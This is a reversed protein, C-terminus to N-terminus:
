LSLSRAGAAEEVAGRSRPLRLPDEQIAQRIGGRQRTEAQRASALGFGHTAETLSGLRICDNITNDYLNDVLNCSRWPRRCLAPRHRSGARDPLPSAAALGALRPEKDAALAVSMLKPCNDKFWDRRPRWHTMVKAYVDLASFRAGLFWPRPAIAAEVIRWSKDRYADTSARLEKGAAEGSVFREPFDGVMYMPYVNAVIFILWRLFADRAPDGPPPVLAAAPAHDAIHLAIAASESMVTGDPLLLTPV